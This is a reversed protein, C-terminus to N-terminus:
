WTNNLLKSLSNLETRLRTIDSQMRTYNKIYGIEPCGCSNSNCDNHLKQMLMSCLEAQFNIQKERKTKFM